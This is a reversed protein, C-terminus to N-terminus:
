SAREGPAHEVHDAAGLGAAQLATSLADYRELEAVQQGAVRFRTAVEATGRVGGDPDRRVGHQAVVVAAGRAYEARTTFTAGAHALWERLVAHGEAVGRPGVLRVDADTLALVREVHGANVAALWRRVIEVPSTSMPDFTQPPAPM